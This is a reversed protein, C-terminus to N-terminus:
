RDNKNSHTPYIEDLIHSDTTTLMRNVFNLSREKEEETMGKFKLVLRLPSKKSKIFNLPDIPKTSETDIEKKLSKVIQEVKQIDEVNEEKADKQLYRLYHEWASIISRRECPFSITLKVFYDALQQESLLDVLNPESETM